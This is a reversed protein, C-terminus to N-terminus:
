RCVLGQRRHQPVRASPSLLGRVLRELSLGGWGMQSDSILFSNQSVTLGNEKRCKRDRGDREFVRTKLPLRLSCIEYLGHLFPHAGSRALDSVPRSAPKISSFLMRTMRSCCQYIFLAAHM